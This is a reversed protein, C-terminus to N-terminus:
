RVSEWGIEKFGMGIDEWMPRPRGLSSKGEAKFVLIRYASM